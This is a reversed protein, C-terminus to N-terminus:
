TSEAVEYSDAWGLVAERVQESNRGAKGILVRFLEGLCQAPIVVADGPLRQLLDLSTRHRGFDGVGEAYALINTDLALRM